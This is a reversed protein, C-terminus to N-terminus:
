VGGRGAHRQGAAQGRAGGMRAPAGGPGRALGGRRALLAGGPPQREAAHRHRHPRASSRWLHLLAPACGRATDLELSCEEAPVGAASRPAGAAGRWWAAASTCASRPPRRGLRLSRDLPAGPDATDTPTQLVAKASVSTRRVAPRAHRAHMKGSSGPPAISSSTASYPFLAARYRRGVTDSFPTSLPMAGPQSGWHQPQGLLHALQGPTGIAPQPGEGGLGRSVLPKRPERKNKESKCPSLNRQTVTVPRQVTTRCAVCARPCLCAM